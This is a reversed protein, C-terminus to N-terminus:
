KSIADSYNEYAQRLAVEATHRHRLKLIPDPEQSADILAGSAAKFDTDGIAVLTEALATDFLVDLVVPLVYGALKRTGILTVQRALGGDEWTKLKTLKDKAGLIHHVSEGAFSLATSAQGAAPLVLAFGHEPLEQFGPLLGEPLADEPPDPTM